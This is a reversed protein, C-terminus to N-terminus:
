AEKGISYYDLTEKTKKDVPRDGQGLYEVTDKLIGALAKDLNKFAQKRRKKLKPQKNRYPEIYDAVFVIKELLGMGPRGTTHNEIAALIEPDSIGFEKKAIRAGAKGHLLYPAMKETESIPLKEKECFHLLEGDSMPKAIDHLLGAALARKVEEGYVAALLASTYAVSLTHAFRREDMRRKLTKVMSGLDIEKM